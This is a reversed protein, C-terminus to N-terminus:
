VVGSRWAGYASDRGDAKGDQFLLFFLKEFLQDVETFGQNPDSGPVNGCFQQSFFIQAVGHGVRQELCAVELVRLAVQGLEVPGVVYYYDLLLEGIGYITNFVPVKKISDVMQYIKEEEHSLSGIVKQLAEDGGQERVFDLRSKLVSGKVM